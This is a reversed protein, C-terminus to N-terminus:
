TNWSLIQTAPPWARRSRLSTQDSSSGAAQLGHIGASACHALTARSIELHTFDVVVDVDPASLTSLDASVVVAESPTGSIGILDAVTSGAYGPDVAAALELGPRQLVTRCVERGM